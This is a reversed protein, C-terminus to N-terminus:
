LSVLGSKVAHLTLEATSHVGLRKMANYKHFEVTKVTVHLIQAIEKAARGEAVMQVIERERATLGTVAREKVRGARKPLTERVESPIQSTVFVHGNLTQRIAHVLESHASSKLVYGHAGARFAERVYTADAHMTLFIIKTEPLLGRLRRAAEIGNMLPLSIDVLIADPRLTEAASLLERGDGVTGAVEFDERLLSCLGELVMTHDDALLLRPRNM